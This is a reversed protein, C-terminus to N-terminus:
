LVQPALDMFAVMGLPYRAGIHHHSGSGDSAIVGLHHRGARGVNRHHLPGLHQGLQHAQFFVANGHGTAM